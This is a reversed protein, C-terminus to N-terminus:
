GAQGDSMQEFWDGAAAPAMWPEVAVASAPDFRLSRVQRFMRISDRFLSVQSGIRHEWTVPIETVSLRLERALMLIEVDFAFGSTECRGFVASAADTRFAKFGCQTDLQALGTRRRVYWNFVRGSVIRRHPAGIVTSQRHARSGVVVDSTQLARLAPGIADLNTALDADMMLVYRGSAHAVGLRVAAGKGGNKEARIVHSGGYGGLLSEAVEATRDTSGDDVVLIETDDASRRQMLELLTRPLRNEENFAPIVVTLEPVGDCASATFPRASATSSFGSPEEGAAERLAAEVADVSRDVTFMQSYQRAGEGLRERAVPDNALAKWLEVFDSPSCALLGSYEDRIADRVGVVDFAVAPVGLGGAEVVVMGFGERAAPHVLLWSTAVLEDRVEDSVYGHFVTAPSVRHRLAGLGPGDGVIHLTGGTHPHVQEWMDLLLDLRKHPVARSVCVFQPEASPVPVRHSREVPNFVVRISSPQVGLGELGAATSPSVAVFRANRYVFPVVRGELFRGIRAIPGPFKESWQDVHVHHVFCVVPRRRWLPTFYPIGNAIDIVVDAQRGHRLYTWPGRLYQTWRGGASVVQYSRQGYPRPVALTVVHGRQRLGDALRHVVVESGGAEPHALEKWANIFVRM